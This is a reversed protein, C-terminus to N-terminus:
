KAIMNMKFWDTASKSEKELVKMLEEISNRAASITNGDACNALEVDKIFLFLDNILTNVLIPGLLSVQPIGPLLIKFVSETKNIKVSKEVSLTAIHTHIDGRFISEDSLLIFNFFKSFILEPM